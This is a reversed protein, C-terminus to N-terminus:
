QNLFWSGLLELSKGDNVLSEPPANLTEMVSSIDADTNIQVLEVPNSFLTVAIASLVSTVTVRNYAESAAPDDIELNVVLMDSGSRTAEVSKVADILKIRDELATDNEWEQQAPATESEATPAAATTDTSAGCGVMSLSLAGALALASLLTPTRM